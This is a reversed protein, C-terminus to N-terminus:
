NGTPEKNYRENKEERINMNEEVKKFLHIMNITGKLFSDKDAFAKIETIELDRKISQNKQQKNIKNKNKNIQKNKISSM